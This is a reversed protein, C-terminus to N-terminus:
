GRSPSRPWGAWGPPRCSWAPSWSRGTASRTPSLLPSRRSWCAAHGDLGPDAPGAQFPSYGLGIQFLQTIFFLSGILSIFQFFIVANATAFGRRRFYALPLMPYRARREGALFLALLAAGAAFAGIVEASAWGVAPARVPAWTLAFLAIGALIM